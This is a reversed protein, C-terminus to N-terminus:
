KQSFIEIQDATFKQIDSNKESYNKYWDATWFIAEDFSLKPKWNLEKKARSNDLKLIGAEHLDANANIEYAGSGIKKIFSKTLIEVNKEADRDPGFNYAKAFNEGKEYLNKALTLYGSLPELVHQWPRIANPSRLEVKKGDRIARFIDPIIRDSSFDGGGIVNGARVSALGIGAKEFFSRRYSSTLIEACAKSSSYPDYGGLSDDECYNHNIEKNEYCKDTTVNVLAKVSGAKRVAEFVNLTGIVNTKYTLRPDAYSPRVLAQAAMHIVIEPQFNKLKKELLVFDRIDGITSEELQLALDLINFLSEKEPALSFGSVKAGMKLLWLSLWAGKFGTHGTLFIRKGHYFNKDM